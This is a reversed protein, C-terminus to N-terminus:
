RNHEKKEDWETEKDELVNALLSLIYIPLIVILVPWMLIILIYEGKRFKPLPEKKDQKQVAVSIIIGILFYSLLGAAVIIINVKM